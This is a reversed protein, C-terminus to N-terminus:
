AAESSEKVVVNRIEDLKELLRRTFRLSREEARIGEKLSRRADELSPNMRRGSVSEESFLSSCATSETCETGCLSELDESRTSPSYDADPLKSKTLANRVARLAEDIADLTEAAEHDRANSPRPITQHRRPSCCLSTSAQLLATPYHDGRRPGGSTQRRVQPPKSSSAKLGPPFSTSGSSCVSRTIKERGQARAPYCSSPVKSRKASTSQSVFVPSLARPSNM